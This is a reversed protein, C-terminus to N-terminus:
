MYGIKRFDLGDHWLSIWNDTDRGLLGLVRSYVREGVKELLPLCPSNTGKDTLPCNTTFYTRQSKDKARDGLLGIYFGVLKNRVWLAKEDDLDESGLDDILLFRKKNYRNILDAASSGSVLADKLRLEDVIAGGNAEVLATLLFTKGSGFEGSVLLGQGSLENLHSKMVRHKFRRLDLKAAASSHWNTDFEQWNPHQELKHRLALAAQAQEKARLDAQIKVSEPCPCKGEDIFEDFNLNTRGNVLIMQPAYVTQCYPCQWTMQTITAQLRDFASSGNKSLRAMEREVEQALTLNGM